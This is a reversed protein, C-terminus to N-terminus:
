VRAVSGSPSPANEAVMRAMAGSLVRVESVPGNDDLFTLGELGDVGNYCPRLYSELLPRDGDDFHSGITIGYPTSLASTPDDWYSWGTFLQNDQDSGGFSACLGISWCVSRGSPETFSFGDASPYDRYTDSIPEGLRSSVAAVVEEPQAGFDFSGLGGERLNLAAPRTTTTEAVTTTTAADTCDTTWVVSTM